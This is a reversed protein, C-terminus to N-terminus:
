RARPLHFDYLLINPPMRHRGLRLRIIVPLGDSFLFLMQGIQLFFASHFPFGKRGNQESRHLVISRPVHADSPYRMGPSFCSIGSSSVCLFFSGSVYCYKNFYIVIPSSVLFM